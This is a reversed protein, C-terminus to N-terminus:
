GMLARLVDGGGGANLKDLAAKIKAFEARAGELQPLLTNLDARAEKEEGAVKALMTSRLNDYEDSVMKNVRIKAEQDTEITRALVDKQHELDAIQATLDNVKGSNVAVAADYEAQATVMDARVKQVAATLDEQEQLLLVHNDATVKMTNVLSLLDMLDQMPRLISALADKAADRNGSDKGLLIEMVDASKPVTDFHRKLIEISM